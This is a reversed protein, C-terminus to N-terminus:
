LVEFKHKEPRYAAVIAILSLFLWVYTYGLSHSNMIGIFPLTIVTVYVAMRAGPSLNNNCRARHLIAYLWFGFFTIMLIGYQAFIEVFLNHPNIINGLFSPQHVVATEFGGAGIGFGYSGKLMEIGCKLMALRENASEDGFGLTSPLRYYMTYFLKDLDIPLLLVAFTLFVLGGILYKLQIKKIFLLSFCMIQFGAVFMGMRSGNIIIFSVGLILAVFYLLRSKMDDLIGWLLYPVVFVIFAGYNNVNGFTVSTHPVTVGVGGLVRTSESSPFHKYTIIEIISVVSMLLFCILWGRRILLLSNDIKRVLFAGVPLSLVGICMVLLESTFGVMPAPSWLLSVFGYVIWTAFLCLGVVVPTDQRTFKNQIIPALYLIAYFILLLRTPQYSGFFEQGTCM